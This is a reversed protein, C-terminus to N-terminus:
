GIVLRAVRLRGRCSGVLTFFVLGIQDPYLLPRSPAMTRRRLRGLARGLSSRLRSRHDPRAGSCAMPSVRLRHVEPRHHDDHGQHRRHHRHGGEPAAAPDVAPEPPGPRHGHVVRRRGSGPSRAGVPATAWSSIRWISSALDARRSARPSPASSTSASISARIRVGGASSARRSSTRWSTTARLSRRAAARRPAAPRPPRPPDGAERDRPTVRRKTLYLTARPHGVVLSKLEVFQENAGAAVQVRLGLHHHHHVVGRRDVASIKLM